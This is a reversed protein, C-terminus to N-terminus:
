VIFWVLRWLLWFATGYVGVLVVLMMGLVVVSSIIKTKTSCLDGRPIIMVPLQSLMNWSWITLSVVPDCLCDAIADNLDFFGRWLSKM